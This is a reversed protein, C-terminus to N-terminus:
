YTPRSEKPEDSYEYILKYLSNMATLFIKESVAITWMSSKSQGELIYRSLVGKIMDIDRITASEMAIRESKPDPMKWKRYTYPYNKTVFKTNKAEKIFALLTSDYVPVPIVKHEGDGEYFNSTTDGSKKELYPLYKVLKKLDDKYENVVQERLSVEQGYM